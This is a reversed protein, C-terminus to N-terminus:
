CSGIVYRANEQRSIKLKYIKPKKDQNAAKIVNEHIRNKHKGLLQKKIVKGCLAYEIDQIVFNVNGRRKVNLIISTQCNQEPRLVM